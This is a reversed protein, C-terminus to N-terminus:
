RFIYKDAWMITFPDPSIVFKWTYKGDVDKLWKLFDSLQEKGLMSKNPDDHPLSESDRYRRTDM